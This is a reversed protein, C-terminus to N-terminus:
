REVFDDFAAKADDSLYQRLNRVTEMAKAYTVDGEVPETTLVKVLAEYAAQRNEAEDKATQAAEATEELEDQTQRLTEQAQKLESELERNTDQLEEARQLASASSSSLQDIASSSSHLQFLMSLLVLLFAVAFLILMYRLLATRKEAPVQSQVPNDRTENEKM